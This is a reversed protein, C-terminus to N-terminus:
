QVVESSTYTQNFLAELQDDTLVMDGEGEGEFTCVRDLAICLVEKGDLTIKGFGRQIYANISIIKLMYNM